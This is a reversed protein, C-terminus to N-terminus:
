QVNVVRELDIIEKAIDISLNECGDLTVLVDDEIRIGINWQSIYLGPEVTIVNGPVLPQTKLLGVDHTDLGLSHSVGHYYYNDIDEPISLLGLKSLESIYFNRLIDNLEGTTIGPKINAMVQKQGELVLQYIIRQREDFRGNVPYTRSIDASYGNFKVGLDFLMLAGDEILSSNEQYHLVTANAGSAAITNFALRDLGNSRMNYKFLAEMQYEYYGPKLTSRISDIGMKTYEIAKKICAIEEADKVSRISSIELFCNRIHLTPFERRVINRFKKSNYIDSRDHELDLYIYVPNKLLLDRKFNAMFDDIAMVNPLQSIEAVQNFNQFEGIWKALLPDGKLVYLEESCVGATKQMVLISNKQKIGTLYFFSSNATFDYVEDANKTIEEGAFLVVVSNDALKSLLETRRKSYDM